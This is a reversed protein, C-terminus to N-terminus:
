IESELLAHVRKLVMLLHLVLMATFYYVIGDEVSKLVGACKLEEDTRFAMMCAVVLLVSVLICFSINSFTEELLTKKAGWVKGDLKFKAVLSYILVLLNLLLGAFISASTIISNLIDKNLQYYVSFFGGFILPVVFFVFFDPISARGTSHDRMTRLHSLIIRGFSLKKTM